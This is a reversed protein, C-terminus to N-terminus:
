GCCVETFWRLIWLLGDLVQEKQEECAKLKRSLANAERKYQYINSLAAKHQARLLAERFQENVVEGGVDSARSRKLSM